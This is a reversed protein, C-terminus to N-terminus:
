VSARCPGGYVLVKSKPRSSQGFQQHPDKGSWDRHRGAAVFSPIEFDYTSRREARSIAPISTVTWVV